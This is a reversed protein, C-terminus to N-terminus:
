ASLEFIKLKQRLIVPCCKQFLSSLFVRHLSLQHYFQIDQGSKILFQHRNILSEHKHYIGPASAAALIGPSLSDPPSSFSFSCFFFFFLCTDIYICVLVIYLIDWSLSFCTLIGDYLMKGCDVHTFILLTCKHPRATYIGFTQHM